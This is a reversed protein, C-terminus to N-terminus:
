IRETKFYESHEGPTLTLRAILDAQEQCKARLLDREELLEHARYFLYRVAHDGIFDEEVWEKDYRCCKLLYGDEMIFIYKGDAVRLKTTM